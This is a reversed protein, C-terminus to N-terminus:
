RDTSALGAVGLGIFLISVIKIPSLAEGLVLTGYTTVGAIGIGVWIPYALSAPLSRMALSLLVFSLAAMAVGFIAPGPRSFGDSAKLSAAWAIELIGAVFLYIWATM